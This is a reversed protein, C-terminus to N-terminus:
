LDVGVVGRWMFLKVSVNESYTQDQLETSCLSCSNTKNIYKKLTVCIHKIIGHGIFDM